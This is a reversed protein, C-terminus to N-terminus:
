ADPKVARWFVPKRKKTREADGQAELEMLLLSTYSASRGFKEVVQSFTLHPATRLIGLIAQRSEERTLRPHTMPWSYSEALFGAM